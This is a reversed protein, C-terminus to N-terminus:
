VKNARSRSNIETLARAVEKKASHFSSVDRNASGSTNFRFNRIIERQQNVYDVLESDSKKKIEKYSM